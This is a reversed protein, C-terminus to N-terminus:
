GFFLEDGFDWYFRKWTTGINTYIRPPCPCTPSNNNKRMWKLFMERDTWTSIIQRGHSIARENFPNGWDIANLKYHWGGKDSTTVRLGSGPPALTPNEFDEQCYLLSQLNSFHVTPTFVCSSPGSSGMSPGSSIFIVSRSLSRSIGSGEHNCSVVWQGFDRLGVM